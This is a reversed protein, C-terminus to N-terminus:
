AKELWAFAQDNDQLGVYIMAIDAANSQKHLFGNKLDGLIKRAKNEDGSVAYLYALLSTCIPDGRSLEIAEQLETAAQKFNHTQVLAQAMEYHAMAFSPDM